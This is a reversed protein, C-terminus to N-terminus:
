RGTSQVRDPDSYMGPEYWWSCQAVNLVIVLLICAFMQAGLVMANAVHAQWTTGSTFAGFLNTYTEQADIMPDHDFTKPKQAKRTQYARPTTSRAARRLFDAEERRKRQREELDVVAKM